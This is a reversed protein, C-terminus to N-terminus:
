VSYVSSDLEGANLREDLLAQQPPELSTKYLLPSPLCLIDRQHPDSSKPWPLLLETSQPMKHRNMLTAYTRVSLRVLAKWHEVPEMVSGRYVLRPCRNLRPLFTSTSLLELMRIGFQSNGSWEIDIQKLTPPFHTSLVVSDLTLSIGCFTLSELNQLDHLCPALLLNIRAIGRLLLSQLSKSCKKAVYTVIYSEDEDIFCERMEFTRLQPMAPLFDDRWTRRYTPMESLDLDKLVLVQLNPLDLTSSGHRRFGTSLEGSLVLTQLRGLTNMSSHYHEFNSVHLSTVRARRPYNEFLPLMQAEMAMSQIHPMSRLLRHIGRCSSRQFADGFELSRVYSGLLTNSMTDQLLIARGAKHVTIDQYLIRQAPSLWHKCVLAAHLVTSLDPALADEETLTRITELSTTYSFIRELVEEPLHQM